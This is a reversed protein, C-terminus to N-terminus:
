EKHGRGDKRQARHVLLLQTIAAGMAQKNENKNSDVREQSEDAMGADIGTCSVRPANSM